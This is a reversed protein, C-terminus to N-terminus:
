NNPMGQISQFDRSSTRVTELSSIAPFSFLPFTGKVGEIGWGRITFVAEHGRNIVRIGLRLYCKPVTNRNDLVV